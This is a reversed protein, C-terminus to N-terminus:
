ACCQNAHRKMKSERHLCGCMNRGGLAVFVDSMSPRLSADDVVCEQVIREIKDGLSIDFSLPTPDAGDQAIEWLTVGFSYIDRRSDTLEDWISNWGEMFGQGNTIDILQADNRSDIVVNQCRLDGHLLGAKHIM